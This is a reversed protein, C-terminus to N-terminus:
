AIVELLDHQGELYCTWVQGRGQWMIGDQEHIGIMALRAAATM